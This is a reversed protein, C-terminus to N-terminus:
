LDGWIKILEEAGVAKEGAEHRIMVCLAELEDLQWEGDIWVRGGKSASIKEYSGNSREKVIEKAQDLTINIM